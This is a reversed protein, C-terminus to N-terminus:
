LLTLLGKLFLTAFSVGGVLSALILWGKKNKQCFLFTCAPYVVLSIFLPSWGVIVALKLEPAGYAAKQGIKDALNFLGIAILLNLFSLFIFRLPDNTIKM